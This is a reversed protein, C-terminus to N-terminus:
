RQSLKEVTKTDLRKIVETLLKVLNEFDGKHLISTHSHIYRTAAGVYLTPVGARSIHIRGGDTGGRDLAAFHFPIKCEEAIDVVLDRLKRNPIM